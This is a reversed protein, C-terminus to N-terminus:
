EFKDNDLFTNEINNDSLLLEQNPIIESDKEMLVAVVLALVLLAFM